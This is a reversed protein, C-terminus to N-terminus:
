ASKRCIKIQQGPYILDSTLNNCDVLAAVTTKYKKAISWLSDGKQVFYITICPRKVEVEPKNIKIEAISSFSENKFSRISLGLVARLDIGSAGNLTYSIHETFIKTDCITNRDAGSVAITYSFDSSDEFACLPQEDSQSLYLVNCKFKGFVTIEDNEASIREVSANCSIDCVQLIDPYSDPIAVPTKHTIQATTNDILSETNQTESIIETEGDLSYADSIIDLECIRLGRVTACLGIDVGILRPEGDSDDRIECYLDSVSYEIEGEMDEEAGSFDLTENFPVIHEAFQVSGDDASTYLTCIKVQGSALAKNEMLSLEMSQPFVATKLIEAISPKGLPLELQERVSLHNESNVASCCLRIKETDVCINDGEAGVSFELEKPQTIKVNIGTICRLGIKRSNILSYGFSEAEAEVALIGGEYNSIDVTHNFEQSASLSKVASVSEGDPIYLVTMHVCGQIYAKNQRISKDKVSIHGSVELVKKIDPKIDPVIVDCEVNTQSYKQCIVDGIQIKEKKLNVSM